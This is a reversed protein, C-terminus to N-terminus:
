EVVEWCGGRDPGIRKLKGEAKLLEIYRAVTRRTIHLTKAVETTTMLKNEKLLKLIDKTKNETVNETVNGTVNGTVTDHMGDTVTVM